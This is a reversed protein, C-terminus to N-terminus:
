FDGGIMQGIGFVAIVYSAEKIDDSNLIFFADRLRAMFPNFEGHNKVLRLIRQLAHFVDLRVKPMRVGDRLSLQAVEQSLQAVVLVFQAHRILVFHYVFCSSM